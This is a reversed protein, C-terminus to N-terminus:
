YRKTMANDQGDRIVTNLIKQENYQRDKKLRRIVTKPIKQDNYQRDM